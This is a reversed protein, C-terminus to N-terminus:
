VFKEGDDQDAIKQFRGLLTTLIAALVILAFLIEMSCIIKAFATVPSIDGYGVTSITVVNFYFFDALPNGSPTSVQFADGIVKQGGYLPDNLLLLQFITFSFATYLYARPLMDLLCRLLLHGVDGPVILWPSGPRHIKRLYIDDYIRYKLIRAANLAALLAGVCMYFRNLQFTSTYCTVFIIFNAAFDFLGKGFPSRGAVETEKSELWWRAIQLALLTIFIACINQLHVTLGVTTKEVKILSACIMFIMPLLCIILIIKTKSM